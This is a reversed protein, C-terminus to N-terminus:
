QQEKKPGASSDPEEGPDMEETIEVGFLERVVDMKGYGNPSNAYDKIRVMPHHSIKNVVSQLLGQVAEIDRDSLHSLRGRYKEWEGDRVSDFRERLLRILPVVELTKLWSTFKRTEQEIILNVKEVEKEREKIGQDVLSQLDDINYLFVNDLLGVSADIDRPVAIDIMFVPREHRARMIKLMEDRNIIPETAGTSSIVIDSEIIADNLNEFGVAKGGLEKALKEAKELTRNAVTVSAVGNSIIRKATNESMKGAGIILVKRSHLDGFISNALEVAAYGVSFAGRAIDTETRARKGVTLAQQFLNNLIAGTCSCDGAVCYANKVQGLIQPEGLMMSDLGGSVRFLHSVAKHGSLIYLHSKFEDLPVETFASLFDILVDDNEKAETVAYLETRNCTSLICCETVCGCMKLRSHADALGSEPVTLRERVDVPATNHNLGIMVLHM